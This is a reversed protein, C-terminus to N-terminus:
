TGATFVLTRCNPCVFALRLDSVFSVYAGSGLQACSPCISRETVEVSAVALPQGTHPDPITKPAAGIGTLRPAPHTGPRLQLLGQFLDTGLRSTM